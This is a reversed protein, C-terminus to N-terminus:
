YVADADRHVADDYREMCRRKPNVMLLVLVFLLYWPAIYQLARLADLGVLTLTLNLLLHIVVPIVMSRNTHYFATIVISTSIICVLILVIYKFLDMGSYGSTLFWLPAHWFGWILGLLIASVLSSFRKQLGGLAYGELGTRGGATGEDFSQFLRGCDRRIIRTGFFFMPADSFLSCTVKAAMLIFVHVLLLVILM